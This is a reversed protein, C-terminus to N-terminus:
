ATTSLGTLAASREWLGRALEPDRGARSPSRRRCSSYYGGTDGEVEPSAALFISTRAGTQASKFFPRAIRILVGFIGKTDGEMGFGSRVTGPHLANVTVGTGALRHALERAFLLNMLKTRAYQQLGVYTRGSAQLDDLDLDSGQRHAASSVVVVRSPASSRLRDLLLHTLLFHSLHNAQLTLEVGDASLQRESLTAGANNILVDLREHRELFASAFSRVSDFSALDLHMVEVQENGSRQRIDTVAEAGRQEDRATIVVHAGLEALGVATERGIGSNGGTILVTRGTLDVEPPVRGSCGILLQVLRRLLGLLKGLLGGATGTADSM